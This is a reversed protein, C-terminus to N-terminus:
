RIQEQIRVVTVKWVPTGGSGMRGTVFRLTSQDGSIQDQPANFNPTRTPPFWYRATDGDFTIFLDAGSSPPVLVVAEGRGDTTACAAPHAVGRPGDRVEVTAGEIAKGQIRDHVTVLYSATGTGACGTALVLAVLALSLIKM